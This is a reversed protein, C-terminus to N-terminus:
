SAQGLDFFKDRLVIRTSRNKQHFVQNSPCVNEFVVGQGTAPNWLHRFATQTLQNFRIVSNNITDPRIRYLDQRNELRMTEVAFNFIEPRVM